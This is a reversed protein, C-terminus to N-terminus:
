STSQFQSSGKRQRSQRKNHDLTLAWVPARKKKASTPLHFDFFFFCGSRLNTCLLSHIHVNKKLELGGVGIIEFLKVLETSIGNKLVQNECNRPSCAGKFGELSRAPRQGVGRMVFRSGRWTITM